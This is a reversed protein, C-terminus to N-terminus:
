TEGLNVLRYGKITVNLANYQYAHLLLLYEKGNDPDARETKCQAHKRLLKFFFINVMTLLIEEM